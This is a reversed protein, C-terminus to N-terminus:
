PRVGFESIWLPFETQRGSLIRLGYDNAQPVYPKRQGHCQCLRDFCYAEIYVLSADSFQAVAVITGIFDIGFAQGRACQHQGVIAIGDRRRIEIDNGYGRWDIM